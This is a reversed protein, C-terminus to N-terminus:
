LTKAIGESLLWHQYDLMAHQLEHGLVYWQGAIPLTKDILIERKDDDWCGGADHPEAELEEALERPPVRRIVIRYGGPFQHTQPIRRSGRKM